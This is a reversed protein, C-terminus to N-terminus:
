EMSVSHWEEVHNQFDYVLMEPVSDYCRIIDDYDHATYIKGSVGIYVFAPYYYGIDGIYVVPEGAFAEVTKRDELQEEDFYDENCRSEGTDPYLSFLIDASRNLPSDDRENFYWHQAIGYYERLFQKARDSLAIGGSTYFSTIETIDINRGDYWGATKLCTMIKGDTTGNLLARKIM